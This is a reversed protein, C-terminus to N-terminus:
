DKVCRVSFGHEKSYTNRNIGSNNYFLERYIPEFNNPNETSTWWFGTTFKAGFIGDFGSRGGGPMANFQTSNLNTIGSEVWEFEYKLKDGIQAGQGRFDIENLEDPEMGLTFELLQWDEDTAVHYGTPCLGNPSSVAYWNYLFGSNENSNEENNYTCFAPQDALIWDNANTINSIEIGNKFRSTKLDQQFWIQSGIAVTTYENGDEDSVFEDESFFRFVTYNGGNLAGLFNFSKENPGSTSLFNKSCGPMGRDGNSQYIAPGNCIGIHQTGWFILDGAKLSNRSLKGMNKCIIGAYESNSLAATWKAPDKINTVGYNGQAVVSPFNAAVNLQYIMGSCDLGYYATDVMCGSSKALDNPNYYPVKKIRHNKGGWLYALGTQAPMNDPGSYNFNSDDCLFSGMAMMRAILLNLKQSSNLELISRDSSYRGLNNIYDPDNEQLFSLVDQGNRLIIDGLAVTTDPTEILFDINDQSTFDLAVEEQPEPEPEDKEKKCGNLIFASTFVIVLALCYWNQSKMKM